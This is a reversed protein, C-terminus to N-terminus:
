HNKKVFKGQRRAPLDSNQLFYQTWKSILRGTHIINRDPFLMEAITQASAKKPKKESLTQLYNRIALKQIFEWKSTNINRRELQMNPSIDIENDLKQIATEISITIPEFTLMPAQEHQARSFFTTIKAVNKVSEHRRQKKLERRWRTTRSDGTYVPRISSGAGDKWSLKSVAALADDIEVYDDPFEDNIFLIEEDNSSQGSDQSHEEDVALHSRRAFVRASANAALKRCQLTKKSLRGM